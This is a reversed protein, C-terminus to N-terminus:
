GHGESLCGGQLSFGAFLWHPLKTLLAFLSATKKFTFKSRRIAAALRRSPRCATAPSPSSLFCGPLAASGGAALGLALYCPANSSNCLTLLCSSTASM